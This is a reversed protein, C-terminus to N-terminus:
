KAALAVNVTISRLEWAPVLIMEVTAQGLVQQTATSLVTTDYRQLEGLKKKSLLQNEIATELAALRAGTIGEGLFVDAASRVADLCSKVIKMTTLRRYDSDPRSAVPADMVVNGKIRNGFMVYRKGALADLKALSIRFPLRVGPITKNTPASAPKLMSDMGAYYACGPAAYSNTSSSNNFIAPSPVISIYKGIDILHENRDEQQEGDPWGTDTAIFGGYALGEVGGVTHGFLGTGANSRRGAVWKNGLLGTGNSNVVLYGAGDTTTTPVKGIWNSVDKMSWSNPPRTGIVGRVEQNNESQRYCFDALQYAFNAEHFDDATLLTGESDTISTASGASPWVEAVGDRNMDWWFYNQGEYEQVFVRGLADSSSGSLPYSNQGSWTATSLAAIEATTMDSVNLDDLYVNMPVIIDVDESELLEYTNYLEEFMRMRSLTLGDTGATYTAGGVGNAAALTIPVTSTGIDARLGSGPLGVPDGDVQVEHEDVAGSPYAPNNDYVLLDDSARYVRLREESDDWFVTYDTGASDDESITTITIGGSGGVNALIASSGGIRLLAVNEADAELTEYMGRILTGDSKGFTQAAESSSGVQYLTDSSGRAATGIILVRPNESATASSLNGDILYPFTGPLNEFSM